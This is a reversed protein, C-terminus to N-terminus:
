LPALSDSADPAVARLTQSQAAWPQPYPRGHRWDFPPHGLKPHGHDYVNAVGWVAVLALLLVKEAWGAAQGSGSLGDVCSVWMWYGLVPYVVLQHWIKTPAVAQALTFYGRRLERYWQALGFVLCGALVALGAGPGTFGHPLRTGALWTGVGVAVALLPDGYTIAAFQDRPALWRRELVRAIVILSGPTVAFACAGAMWPGHRLAAGLVPLYGSNVAAGLTVPM